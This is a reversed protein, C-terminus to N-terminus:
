RGCVTFPAGAPLDVLLEVDTAVVGVYTETADGVVLESPASTVGAARLRVTTRDTGSLILRVQSGSPGSPVELVTGAGGLGIECDGSATPEVGVFSAAADPLDFGDTSAGVQLAAQATLRARPTIPDDPMAEWVWDPQLDAASISANWVPDVQERLLLDGSRALESAAKVRSRLDPTMADRAVRFDHVAFIGPGVLLALLTAISLAAEISRPRVRALLADLVLAVSPLMLLAGFYAYRSTTAADPGYSGRSYSFMLYAVFVAAWASLALTRRPTGPHLALAAVVLGVVIAPGAGAFGSMNEWTASLGRWAMPVVDSAAATAIGTEADRGWVLFWAGWVAMPPLTLLLARRLGDRLLTHAGLWLLMPIATSATMLSLVSLLWVLGTSRRAATGTAVLLAGLGLAASSIMGVQFSWLLNEAGAGLFVMVTTVGVAIWPQVECRRLVLFFLLCAAAHAAIPLVAFVLYHQLGFVSFLMRYILIPVASWHENHPAMLAEVPGSSLRRELLFMWDDGFFWLHRAEVLLFVSGVVIITITAILPLRGRLLRM